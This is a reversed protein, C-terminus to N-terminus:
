PLPEETYHFNLFFGLPFSCKLAFAFSHAKNHLRRNFAYIDAMNSNMKNQKCSGATGDGVGSTFVSNSVSYFM